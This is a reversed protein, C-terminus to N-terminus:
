NLVIVGLKRDLAVLHEVELIEHHGEQNQQDQPGPDAEERDDDRPTSGLARIALKLFSFPGM